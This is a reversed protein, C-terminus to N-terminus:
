HNKFFQCWDSRLFERPIRGQCHLLDQYFPKTMLSGKANAKQIKLAFSQSCTDRKLESLCPIPAHWTQRQLPWKRDPHRFMCCHPPAMQSLSLSAAFRGGRWCKGWREFFFFFICILRESKRITFHNINGPCILAAERTSISIPSWLWNLTLATRGYM